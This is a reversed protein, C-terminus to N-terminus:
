SQAAFSAETDRGSARGAEIWGLRNLFAGSLFVVAAPLMLGLLLLTLAAPGTLIEAIQLMAGSLGKHLARDAAGHHRLLLLLWFVTEVAAAGLALARLAPLRYGLVLLWSVASGMGAVGFHAPLMTRHTFWAPIATVGILVGTYTALLTGLPASALLLLLAGYWLANQIADPLVEWHHLEVALAAPVSFVGLLTLIWAGMSMPSRHKFVRLMNLFLMPRGLDSVLLAPSLIGGGVATTWIAARALDPQRFMWAMLAVVAAMGALGGVFFYVPIEWTWTPPKVVPMGYYGPRGAANESGGRVRAQTDRVLGSPPIPGGAVDVGRATVVGDSGAQARLADLRKEFDERLPPM